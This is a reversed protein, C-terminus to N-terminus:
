RRRRRLPLSESPREAGDSDARKTDEKDLMNGLDVRWISSGRPMQSPYVIHEGDPSLVFQWARNPDDQTLCVPSADPDVPFLWVNADVGVALVGRSDPLWRLNWWSIMRPGVPSLDGLPEGSASVRLFAVRAPETASAGVGSRDWLVTAVWNGDPSWALPDLYRTSLLERSEPDGAVAIRLSRREGSTQWFVIRDGHVGITKPLEDVGFTWMRRSGDELTWARLQYGDPRREVYLFEHGDFGPVGGRGFVTGGDIPHASTIERTAGDAVTLVKLVSLDPADHPAAYFLHRGDASLVLPFLGMGFNANEARGEPLSVQRMAGGGAPALLLVEDGNLMTSLLIQGETTWALAVDYARAETLQRTPGGDIPLIRLPAAIGSTHALLQNDSILEGPRMERPLHFQVRPEGGLTAVHYVSREDDARLLLADRGLRMWGRWTFLTDPAGGEAAIRMVSQESGSSLVYYIYRGEPGWWPKRTDAAVLTRATGGSSPVIRIVRHGADRPTYAIWRGDPSVDFYAASGELTVPRPPGTPRGNQQDIPLTMVAWYGQRNSRFAIRDGTPFWVPGDHHYDGDTLRAPEGGDTSVIWLNVKQRGENVGFVIWAGDPSMSMVPWVELTDSGFIRTFTPEIIPLDEQAQAGLIAPGGVLLLAVALRGLRCFEPYRM